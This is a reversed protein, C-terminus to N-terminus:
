GVMIKEEPHHIEARRRQRQAIAVALTVPGVRGTYMTAVIILKGLVSLSPTIGTSLGVTGFASTVEFLAALLGTGETILIGMTMSIVFFLSIVTVAVARDVVERPLRRQFLGVEGEGRVTAVVSRVITAATTTKIGGGTGAPSAGIFMLMVTIFLTAPYLSGVPLTYYGATRPTISHFLAGLLKGRWTLPALTAPNNFELALILAAGGVILLATTFLVTRTHLSLRHHRDFARSTVDTVVSFGIGGSVILWSVTLVVVPDEVYARLSISFLDFGANNFASVAHFLGRWMATPIPFDLAWRMSLVVAGVLEFALTMMVVYRLLRVLGSLGFEGMAEQIVLRERLTIRKGLMIALATSMTMIGLGGAQILVLIVAQGFKSYATATDVVTLGTVCVASTATFLANVVGVSLGTASSIPLALLLTGFAIAGAFGAALLRSPTLLGFVARSRTAM